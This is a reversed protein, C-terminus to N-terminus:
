PALGAYPDVVGRSAAALTREGSAPGVLRAQWYPNYLSPYERRRDARPEPREFRVAAASLAYQSAASRSPQLSAAAVRSVRTRAPDAIPDLAADAAEVAFRLERPEPRLPAAVDRTAVLGPYVRQTRAPLRADALRATRPNVSWAGGHDGRWPNPRVANQAAGWGIPV